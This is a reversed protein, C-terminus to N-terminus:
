KKTDKEGQKMNFDIENKANDKVETKTKFELELKDKNYITISAIGVLAVITMCFIGWLMVTEREM